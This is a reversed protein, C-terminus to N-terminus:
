VMRDSKAKVSRREDSFDVVLSSVVLSSAALSSCAQDIPPLGDARCPSPAASLWAIAIIARVLVAWGSSGSRAGHLKVGEADIM